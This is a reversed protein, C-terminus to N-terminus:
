VAARTGASTAIRLDEGVAALIAQRQDQLFLHPGALTRTRLGASTHESWGALEAATVTLDDRGGFASIPCGLPAGTLHRYNELVEFDARLRFLLLDLLDPSDLVAQPIGAYRQQVSRIFEASPLHAIPPTREPLHPARRASVFLHIPEVDLVRALEFALAAGLSHGFLAFPVDVYPRIADAVAEVLPEM